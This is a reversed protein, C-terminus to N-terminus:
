PTIAIPGPIEENGSGLELQGLNSVVGPMGFAVTALNPGGNADVSPVYVRGSLSGRAVMAMQEALGIGRLRDVEAWGTGPDTIVALHGPSLLSILATTGDPSFIVERADDLGTLRELESLNNGNLQLVSAQSGENSFPSGNPVIIIRGDPTAGIRLADIFDMWIDFTALSTFGQGPTRSLVRLDDPDIPAFVTQGGLLVVQSTGPIMVFSSSLRLNFFENPAAILRGDCALYVTSLGSTQDVNEGAVIVTQGDEAIRLDGYGAAPLQIQDLVNLNSASNVRLSALEGDEGLALLLEGSPVMELRAVRFGLDIRTGDDTITGDIALNLTRIDTGPMGSQAGFPHGLVIVRAKDAPGPQDFGCPVLGTDVPGTDNPGGDNSGADVGLDPPAADPSSGGDVELGLDLDGGGDIPAAGDFSFGRDLGQVGGDQTSPVFDRDLPTGECACLILLLLSAKQTSM